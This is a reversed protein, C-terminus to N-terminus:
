CKHIVFIQSPGLPGSMRLEPGCSHATVTVSVRATRRVSGAQALAEAVADGVGEWLRGLRQHVAVGAHRRLGLPFHHSKNCM